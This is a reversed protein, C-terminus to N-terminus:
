GPRPRTPLRALLPRSNKYGCHESWMASFVGLETFTPMRGLIGQIQEFEEPSLGHDLALEDTVPPDGPRPLPPAAAPSRSADVSGAPASGAQTTGATASMGHSRGGGPGCAAPGSSSGTVAAPRASGVLSEFLPLGDTSLQLREVARDPHPMMGLVNGARNVIGAIGNLSGNPNAEPTM